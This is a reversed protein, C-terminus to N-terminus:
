EACLCYNFKNTIIESNIFQTNPWLEFPTMNTSSKIDLAFLKTKKLSFVSINLSTTDLTMQMSNDLVRNDKNKWPNWNWIDMMKANILRAAGVTHGKRREDKYGGWYAAKKTVTDYFYFDSLGVFDYGERVRKIYEKLLKPTVIDDSGVCLVHTCQLKKAQQATTNMKSALPHNPTEIYFYGYKEVMLRSKDGESGAIIPVIQLGNVLKLAEIGKAFMEFVEPRQWVGTIIALKIKGTFPVLPDKNLGNQYDDFSQIQKTILLHDITNPLFAADTLIDGKHYIIRRYGKLEKANVIYRM